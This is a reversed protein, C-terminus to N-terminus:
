RYLVPSTAARAAERLGTLRASSRALPPFAGRTSGSSYSPAATLASPNLARARGSGGDACIKTTTAFVRSLDQLVSASFPKKDVATACTNTSGLGRAFARCRPGWSPPSRRRRPRASRARATPASLFRGRQWGLPRAGPGAADEGKRPPPATRRPPDAGSRVRRPVALGGRAVLAASSASVVGVIAFPGVHRFPVRDLNRSGALLFREGALDTRSTPAIRCGARLLRRLVRPSNDKRNFRGLM